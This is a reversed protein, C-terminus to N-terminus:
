ASLSMRPLREPYIIGKSRIVPLLFDLSRSPDLGSQSIVRFVKIQEPAPLSQTDKLHMEMNLDRMELPLKDQQLLLRDPVSGPTFDDGAISYRGNSM